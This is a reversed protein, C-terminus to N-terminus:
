VSSCCVMGVSLGPLFVQVLKFVVLKTFQTDRALRPLLNSSDFSDVKALPLTRISAATEPPVKETFYDSTDAAMPSSLTFQIRWDPALYTIEFSTLQRM